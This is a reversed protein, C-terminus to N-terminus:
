LKIRVEGTATKYLTNTALGGTTAAAEDAYTPLTAVIIKDATLKLNTGTKVKIEGAAITPVSDAMTYGLGAKDVFVAKFPATANIGASAGIYHTPVSDFEWLDFSQQLLPPTFRGDITGWTKSNVSVDTFAGNSGKNFTTVGAISLQNVANINSGNLSGAFNPSTSAVGGATNGPADPVIAGAAMNTGTGHVSGVSDLFGSSAVADDGNGLKWWHALTSASSLATLDCPEGSNYIATVDAAALKSTYYSFNNFLGKFGEIQNLANTPYGFYLPQNNLTSGSLTDANVTLTKAVGDVYATFGAATSSGSYAVVVHYWRNATPFTGAPTYWVIENTNATNLFHLFLQDGYTAIDYGTYAGGNVIKKALTRYYGATVDSPKIWFSFTFPTTNDIQINDGLSIRSYNSIIVTSKDSYLAEVGSTGGGTGTQGEIRVPM